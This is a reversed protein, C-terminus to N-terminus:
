VKRRHGMSSFAKNIKSFSRKFFGEKRLPQNNVKVTETLESLPKYIERPKGESHVQAKAQEQQKRRLREMLKDKRKQQVMLSGAHYEKKTMPM